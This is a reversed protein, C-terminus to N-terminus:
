GDKFEMTTLLNIITQVTVLAAYNQAPARRSLLKLVDKSYEQFEMLDLTREKPKRILWTRFRKGNVCLYQVYKLFTIMGNVHASDYIYQKDDRDSFSPDTMCMSLKNIEDTLFQNLEKRSNGRFWSKKFKNIAM